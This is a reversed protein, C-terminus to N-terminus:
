PDVLLRPIKIFGSISRNSPEAEPDIWSPEEDASVEERRIMKVFQFKVNNTSSAVPRVLFM